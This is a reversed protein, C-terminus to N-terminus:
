EGADFPHARVFAARKFIVYVFMGWGAAIVAVALWSTWMPMRWPYHTAVLLLVGVLCTVFGATRTKRHLRVIEDVYAARRDLSQAEDSM